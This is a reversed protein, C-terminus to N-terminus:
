AALEKKMKNLSNKIIRSVHTQSLGTIDSIQCQSLRKYFYLYVIKKDRETLLDFLKKVTMKNVLNEELNEEDELVDQMEINNTSDIVFNVSLMEQPVGRKVFYWKDSRFMNQIEGKITPTAYTSFKFGRSENFNKVAKLLGMFATSEIEDYTYKGKTRRYYESAIKRALGLHDEVNIM